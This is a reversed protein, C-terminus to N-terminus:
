PAEALAVPERTPASADAPGVCRSALRQRETMSGITKNESM